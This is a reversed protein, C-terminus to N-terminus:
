TREVIERGYKDIVPVATVADGCFRCKNAEAKIVEACSPCKRMTLSQLGRREAVRPDPSAILIVLLAIPGLLLGLLLWGLTSRGKGEAVGAAILGCIIWVVGIFM